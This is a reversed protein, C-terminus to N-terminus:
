FTASFTVGVRGPGMMPTVRLGAAAGPGYVVPHKPIVFGITAGWFAGPMSGFMAVLLPNGCSSTSGSCAASALGFVTASIVGGWLAGSRHFRGARTVRGVDGSPIERLAGDVM